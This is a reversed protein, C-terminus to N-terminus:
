ITWGLRRLKKLVSLRLFFVPVISIKREGCKLDLAGYWPYRISTVSQKPIVLIKGESEKLPWDAHDRVSDPLASVDGVLPDTSNAFPRSTAAAAFAGVIGGFATGLNLALTKVHPKLFLADRSAVVPGVYDKM